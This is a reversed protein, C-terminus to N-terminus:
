VLSNNILCISCYHLLTIGQLCCCQKKPTLYCSFATYQFSRICLPNMKFHCGKAQMIGEETKLGFAGFLAKICDM